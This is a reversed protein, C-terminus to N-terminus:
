INVSVLSVWSLFLVCTKTIRYIQTRTDGKVYVPEKGEGEGDSDGDSPRGEGNLAKVEPLPDDEM